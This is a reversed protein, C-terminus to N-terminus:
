EELSMIYDIGNKVSVVPSVAFEEQELIFHEVGRSKAKSIIEKLDLIGKDLDVSRRDRDIQKVHLLKLRDKHKEMYDLPEVGAHVAWFIDLEMAAQPPLNEFLIDLLYEGGGTVFEHAHNHYAFKFGADNIKEIVPGLTKALELIDDKTKVESYPCIIYETGTIKNYAIEKDLNETLVKLGVHSGVPVLHLSDLLDKMELADLGGYGAFEVGTYGMAALKKLIGEFDNIIVDRMSYLQISFKDILPM